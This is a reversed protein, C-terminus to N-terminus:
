GTQRPPTSVPRLSTSCCSRRRALEVLRRDGYALTAAPLPALHAIGFRQMTALAALRRQRDLVWVGPRGFLAWLVGTRRRDGHGLMVNELATLSGSIQPSQFARGVGRATAERPSAPAVVHGEIRVTGASPVAFGSVANLFSTKGSGNPGVIGVAEGHRVTVSVDSVARVGGYSVHMGEVEIIPVREVDPRTTAVLTGEGDSAGQTGGQESAARRDAAGPFRGRYRARVRAAIGMVGGPMVVIAVMLAAGYVLQEYRHFHGLLEPFYVYLAAGIVPGWLSRMGGIILALYIALTLNLDYSTPDVFGQWHAGISGAAGAMMSGIMFTRVGVAIPSIGVTEIVKGQERVAIAERGVPSDVLLASVLLVVVLAALAIAFVEFQSSPKWGLLQLRAVNYFQGGTGHSFPKWKQFIIIALQAFGITAIAFYFGYAKRLLVYLSWALAGTVLIAVLFGWLVNDRGAMWVSTYAGIGVFAAQSFALTGSMGFQWFFGATVIAMLEWQVALSAGARTHVLTGRLLLAVAAFGFIGLVIRWSAFRTRV